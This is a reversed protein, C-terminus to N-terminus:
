IPGVSFEQHYNSPDSGHERANRVYKSFALTNALKSHLDWTLHDGAKLLGEATCQRILDSAEPINWVVAPGLVISGHKKPVPYCCVWDWSWPVDPLRTECAIGIWDQQRELEHSRILAKGYTLTGWTLDGKAIAGRIPFHSALGRELLIKSYRLLRHFGDASDDERVFITDSILQVNQIGTEVRIDEVLSVWIGLRDDLQRHDLNRVLRSFGLVDAVLIHSNM